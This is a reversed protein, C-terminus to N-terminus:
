GILNTAAKDCTIVTIQNGAIAVASESDNFWMCKSALSDHRTGTVVLKGELDWALASVQSDTTKKASSRSEQIVHRRLNKHKSGTTTDSPPEPNLPETGVTILNGSPSFSVDSRKCLKLFRASFQRVVSKSSLDIVFLRNDRESSLLIQDPKGTRYVMRSIRPVHKISDVNITQSHHLTGHRRLKYIKFQAPEAALIMDYVNDEHKRICFSTFMQSVSSHLKDIVELDEYDESFPIKSIKLSNDFGLTICTARRGLDTQFPLPLFEAQLLINRHLNTARHLIKREQVDFVVVQNYEAYLLLTRLSCSDKFFSLMALPRKTAHTYFPQVSYCGDESNLVITWFSINRDEKCSIALLHHDKKFEVIDAHEVHGPLFVPASIQKWAITGQTQNPTPFINQSSTTSLHNATEAISKISGASKSDMRFFGISNKRSSLNKMLAAQKSDAPEPQVITKLQDFVQVYENMDNLSNPVNMHYGFANNGDMATFRNVFFAALFEFGTVKEHYESVFSSLGYRAYFSAMIDCWFSELAEKWNWSIFPNSLSMPGDDMYLFPLNTGPWRAQFMTYLFRFHVQAQEILESPLCSKSKISECYPWMSEVILRYATQPDRKEMSLVCDFIDLLFASHHFGDEMWPNIWTHPVQKIVNMILAKANNFQLKSLSHRFQDQLDTHAHTNPLIRMSFELKGLFGGVQDKGFKQQCWKLILLNIYYEQRSDTKSARPVDKVLRSIKEMDAQRKLHDKELHAYKTELNNIRKIYESEKTHNDSQTGRDKTQRVSTVPVSAEILPISRSSQKREESYSNSKLQENSAMQNQIPASHIPQPSSDYYDFISDFDCNGADEDESSLLYDGNSNNSESKSSNKSRMTLSPISPRNSKPVGDDNLRAYRLKDVLSKPTGRASWKNGSQPEFSKILHLPPPAVTQHVYRGTGQQRQKAVFQSQAPTTPLSLRDSWRNKRSEVNNAGIAPLKKKANTSPSTIFQQYEVIPFM